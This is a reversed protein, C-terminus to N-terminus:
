EVGHANYIENRFFERQGDHGYADDFRKFFYAGLMLLGSGVGLHTLSKFPWRILSDAGRGTLKLGKTAMEGLPKGINGLISSGAMWQYLKRFPAHMREAGLAGYASAVSIGIPIINPTVVNSFFGSIRMGYDQFKEFLDFPGYQKFGFWRHALNDMAPNGSWHGWGFESYSVDNEEKLETIHQNMRDRSGDYSDKMMWATAGLAALSFLGIAPNPSKRLTETAAQRLHSGTEGIPATM